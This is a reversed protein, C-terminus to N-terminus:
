FFASEKRPEMAGTPRCASHATAQQVRADDAGYADETDARGYAPQAIAADNSEDAAGAIQRWNLAACAQNASVRM